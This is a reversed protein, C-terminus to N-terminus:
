YPQLDNETLLTAADRDLLWTLRGHVPHIKSAPYKGSEAAHRFIDAIVNAKNRGTVLFVIHAANNMVEGTVTIRKQHTVPHTSVECLNASRLLDMRDPFISATHGDEGIGLLILDFGPFGQRSFPVTRLEAAYRIAEKEPDEEGHIRHINAEPINIQDLLLQRTMGYNSEPSGPSVCREDCWFLHVHDWTSNGQTQKALFRFLLKPSNGGPLMIYLIEGADSAKHILQTLELAFDEALQMPTPFIRVNTKM